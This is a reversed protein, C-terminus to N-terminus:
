AATLGVLKPWVPAQIQTEKRDRSWISLPFNELVTPQRGM